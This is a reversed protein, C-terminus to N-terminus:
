FTAEQCDTLLPSLMADGAPAYVQPLFYRPLGVKWFQNYAIASIRDDVTDPFTILLARAMEVEQCATAADGKFRALRANGVRIWPDNQPMTSRKAAAALQAEATQQEGKELSLIESIVYGSTSTRQSDPAQEWLQVADGTKGEALLTVVQASISLRRNEAALTRRLESHQWEPYLSADPYLVLTEQYAKRAKETDGAAEYLLGLNFPLMWAQPALAVAREM